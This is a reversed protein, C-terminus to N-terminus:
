MAGFGVRREVPEGIEVYALKDTPVLVRRGKEDVLRLLGGTSLASAVASEIEDANQNSELTLERAVSQVGIKVEM